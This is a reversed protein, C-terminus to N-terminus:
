GNDIEALYEEYCRDDLYGGYDGDEIFRRIVKLEERNALRPNDGLEDPILAEVVVPRDTDFTGDHMCWEVAVLIQKPFFAATWTRDFEDIVHELQGNTDAPITNRM